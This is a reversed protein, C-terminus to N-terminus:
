SQCLPDAGDVERQPRAGDPGYDIRSIRTVPEDDRFSFEGPALGVEDVPLASFNQTTQRPPASPADSM